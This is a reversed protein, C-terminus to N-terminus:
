EHIARPTGANVFDGEDLDRHVREGAFHKRRQRIVVGVIVDGIANQRLLLKRAHLRTVRVQFAM